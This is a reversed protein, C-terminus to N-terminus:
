SRGALARRIVSYLYKVEDDPLGAAFTYLGGRHKLTVGKSKALRV